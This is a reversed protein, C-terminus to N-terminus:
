CQFDGLSEEWDTGDLVGRFLEQDIVDEVRCATDGPDVLDVDNCVREEEVLENCPCFVPLGILVAGWNVEDVVSGGIFVFSEAGDAIELEDDIFAVNVIVDRYDRTIVQEALGQCPETFVASAFVCRNHTDIVDAIEAM